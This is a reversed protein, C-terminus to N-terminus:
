ELIVRILSNQKELDQIRKDQSVEIQGLNNILQQQQQLEGQILITAIYYVYRHSQIKTLIIQARVDLENNSNNNDMFEPISASESLHEGDRIDYGIRIYTQNCQFDNRTDRILFFFSGSIVLSETMLGTTRLYPIELDHDSDQRFNM